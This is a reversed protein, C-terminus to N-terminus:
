FTLRCALEQMAPTYETECNPIGGSQLYEELSGSIYGLDILDEVESQPLEKFENNVLVKM